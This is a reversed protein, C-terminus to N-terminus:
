GAAAEVQMARRETPEAHTDAEHVHAAEICLRVADRLSTAVADAKVADRLRVTDNDAMWCGLLIRANPLKRRLRRIIYRIHAPSSTDLYSPM